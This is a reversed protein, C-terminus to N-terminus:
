YGIQTANMTKALGDFQAVSLANALVTANIDMNRIFWAVSNGEWQAMGQDGDIECYVEIFPNNDQIDFIVVLNDNHSISANSGM